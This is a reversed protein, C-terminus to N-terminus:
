RSDRRMSSHQQSCPVLAAILVTNVEASNCRAACLNSIHAATASFWTGLFVQASFLMHMFYRSALVLTPAHEACARILM